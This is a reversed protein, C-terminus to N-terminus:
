VAATDFTILPEILNNEIVTLSSGEVSWAQAKGANLAALFTEIARLGEEPLIMPVSEANAIPHHPGLAMPTYNAAVFPGAALAAEHAATLNGSWIPRAVIRQGSRLMAVPQCTLLLPKKSM